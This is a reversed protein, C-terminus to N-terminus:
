QTPTPEVVTAEIIPNEGRKPLNSVVEAHIRERYAKRLADLDSNGAGVSAELKLPADIGIIKAQRELLKIAAEIWRPDGDRRTRTVSRSGTAEGTANVAGSMTQGERKSREWAEMVENYLHEVKQYQSAKYEGISRTVMAKAWLEELQKMNKHILALSLTYSGANKENVKRTIERPGCGKSMLSALLEDDSKRQEETRQWTPLVGCRAGAGSTIQQSDEPM